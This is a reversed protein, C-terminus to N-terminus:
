TNDHLVELNICFFYTHPSQGPGVMVSVQVRNGGVREFFYAQPLISVFAKIKDRSPAPTAALVQSATSFSLAAWFVMFSGVISTVIKRM